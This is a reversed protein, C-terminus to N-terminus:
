EAKYKFIVQVGQIEVERKNVFVRSLRVIPLRAKTTHLVLERVYRDIDNLNEHLTITTHM